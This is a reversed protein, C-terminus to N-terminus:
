RIPLTPRRFWHRPHLPYPSYPFLEVLLSSYVVSGRFGLQSLSQGFSGVRTNEVPRINRRRGSKMSLRTTKGGQDGRVSAHDELTHMTRQRKNGTGVM